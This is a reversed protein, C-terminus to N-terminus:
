KGNLPISSDSLLEDLTQVLGSGAEAHLEPVGLYDGDGVVPRGGVDLSQVLDDGHLGADHHHDDGVVLHSEAENLNQHKVTAEQLALVVRGDLPDADHLIGDRGLADGGGDELLDERVEQNGILTEERRLLGLAIIVTAM